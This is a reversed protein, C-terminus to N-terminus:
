FIRAFCCQFFLHSLSDEGNNCLPCNSFSDSSSFVSNVQERTPLINWAIKWLFLKLRDNLNLKWIKKWFDPTIGPLVSLDDQFSKIQLYASKSSFKGSTSFIWLFWPQSILSIRIKSIEFVSFEDFVFILAELNWQTTDAHIFDSIFGVPFEKNNPFKPHPLFSPMTPIWATTWIPFDSCTSVQLCAGSALLSKCKQLGQWFWSAPSCNLVSLLNGYPIYKQHLQQVWVKPAENLFTWGLKTLIALNTSKMDRIGLGGHSRPMCISQWSKLTLNRTKGKPFGWWLIKFHRDLSNCIFDLLIFTSM